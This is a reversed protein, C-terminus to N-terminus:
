ILFVPKGLSRAYRVTAWTGSRVLEKAPDRPFAVLVSSAEVIDHNREIYNVAVAEWDGRLRARDKPNTPPHVHIRFGKSRAIHHAFDDMGVCDGHHLVIAKNRNGDHLSQFLDDLRAVRRDYEGTSFQLNSLRTGTFGIHIADSMVM